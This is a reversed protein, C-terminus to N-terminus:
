FGRLKDAEENAASLFLVPIDKLLPNQRMAACVEYGNMEPMSVDLLVLDPPNTEMAALALRGRPFSAVEFQRELLIGELLSLNVPVDDIILVRNPRNETM